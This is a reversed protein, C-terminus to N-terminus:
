DTSLASQNQNILKLMKRREGTLQLCVPSRQIGVIVGMQYSLMQISVGMGLCKLIILIADM